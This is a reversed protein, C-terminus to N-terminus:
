YKIKLIKPDSSGAIATPSFISWLNEENALREFDTFNKNKFKMLFKNFSHNRNEELFQKALNADPHSTFTKLLISLCIKSYDNDLNKFSVKNIENETLTKSIFKNFINQSNQM